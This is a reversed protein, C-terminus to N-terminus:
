NTKRGRGPRRRPLPGGDEAAEWVAEGLAQEGEEPAPPEEGGEAFWQLPLRLLREM